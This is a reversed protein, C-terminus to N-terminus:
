AVGQASRLISTGLDRRRDLSVRVFHGGPVREIGRYNSLRGAAFRFMLLEALAAPDAEAGVFRTLPGAESAFGTFKGRKAMYLPKIGLPDRGAIATAKKADVFVFAYMGELKPLAAEGWHILAQMLVETDGSTRFRVGESELARRM